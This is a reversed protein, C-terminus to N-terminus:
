VRNIRYCDDIFPTLLLRTQGQGEGLIISTFCDTVAYVGTFVACLFFTTQGQGGKKLGGGM